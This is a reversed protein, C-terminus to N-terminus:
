QAKAWKEIAVLLAFGLGHGRLDPAVRLDWIAALDERRELMDLGETRFAIVAGGARRDHIWASFFAWHTTDFCKSWDSPRNGGISDYNKVYSSALKRERLVLGGLGGDVVTLDLVGEVEFAISIQEHAPLHGLHEQIVEINM